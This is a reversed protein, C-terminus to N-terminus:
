TTNRSSFYLSHQCWYVSYYIQNNEVLQIFKMLLTIFEQATHHTEGKKWGQKGGGSGVEAKSM